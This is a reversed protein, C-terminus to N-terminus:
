ETRCAKYTVNTYRKPHIQPATSHIEDSGNQQGQRQSQEIAVALQSQTEMMQTDKQQLQEQPQGIHAQLEEQYAKGAEAEQCTQAVQQQMQQPQMNADQQVRSTQDQLQARMGEYQQYLPPQKEELLAWEASFRARAAEFAQMFDQKGPMNFRLISLHLTDRDM